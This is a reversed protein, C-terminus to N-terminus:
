SRCFLIWALASNAEIDNTPKPAKTASSWADIDGLQRAMLNIVDKASAALTHPPNLGPLGTSRGHCRQDVLFVDWPRGAYTIQHM